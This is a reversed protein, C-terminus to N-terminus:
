KSKPILTSYPGDCETSWEAKTVNTSKRSQIGRMYGGGSCKKTTKWIGHYFIYLPM